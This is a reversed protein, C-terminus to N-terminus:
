IDPAPSPNRPLSQYGRAYIVLSFGVALVLLGIFQLQSVKEKFIFYSLTTSLFIAGGFVVPAVIGVKNQAYAKNIAMVFLAIMIGALVSMILGFKHSGLNKKTILPIAIAIPIIASVTNIIGAALNSNLNRAASAGLIIAISYCILALFIYIM